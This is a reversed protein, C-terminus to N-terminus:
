SIARRNFRRGAGGFAGSREGKYFPYREIMHLHGIKTSWSMCKAIMVPLEEAFNPVLNNSSNRKLTETVVYDHM